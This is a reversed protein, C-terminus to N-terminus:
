GLLALLHSGEMERKEGKEKKRTQSGFVRQINGVALTDVDGLLQVPKQCLSADCPKLKEM